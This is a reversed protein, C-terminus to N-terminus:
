EKGSAAGLPSELGQLAQEMETDKSLGVLRSAIRGASDLVVTTPVAHVDGFPGGGAILESDGMVVPYELHLADRFATVLPRNEPPELVVAAAQVQLRHRRSLMTLFRAQAQSASDYSTIFIIVSPRGRLASASLPPGDIGEYHFSIPEESRVAAPPSPARRATTGACGWALWVSGYSLLAFTRLKVRARPRVGAPISGRVTSAGIAPEARLASACARRPGAGRGGTQAAYSELVAGELETQPSPADRDQVMPDRRVWAFGEHPRVRCAVVHVFSLYLPMAVVLISDGNPAIGRLARGAARHMRGADVEVAAHIRARRAPDTEVSLLPAYLAVNPVALLPADQDLADLWLARGKADLAEYALGAALAAEADTALASLWARWAASAREVFPAAEADTEPPPEERASQGDPPGDAGDLPPKILTSGWDSGGYRLPLGDAVRSPARMASPARM